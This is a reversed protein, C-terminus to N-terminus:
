MQDDVSSSISSIDHHRLYFSVRSAAHWVHGEDGYPSRSDKERDVLARLDPNQRAFAHLDARSAGSGLFNLVTLVGMVIDNEGNKGHHKLEAYALPLAGAQVLQASAVDPLNDVDYLRRIVGWVAKSVQVDNPFLEVVVKTLFARGM